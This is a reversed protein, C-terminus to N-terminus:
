IITEFTKRNIQNKRFLLPTTDTDVTALNSLSVFGCSYESTIFATSAPKGILSVPVAVKNICTVSTFSLGGFYTHQIWLIFLFM